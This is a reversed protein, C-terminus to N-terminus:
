RIIEADEQSDELGRNRQGRSSKKKKRNVDDDDDDSPTCV